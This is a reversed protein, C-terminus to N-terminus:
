DRRCTSRSCSSCAAHDATSGTALTPDGISLPLREPRAGFVGSEYVLQLSPSVTRQALNCVINPLGVGVFCNGVGALQRASAAIMLESKSYGLDTGRDRERTGGTTSRVPSRPSRASRTGTPTASSRSTSACPELPRLGVRRALRRADAPDTAIRDWELYFRNDRDYYGQAFSPHCAFPEEVVADVVRGPDRHPEPRAPDSVRRRGGRRGRDGIPPSRRRRRAARAAGLDARRGSRRGAARARGGRRAQAAARRLGRRGDDYPSAM